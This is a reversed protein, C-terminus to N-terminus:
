GSWNSEAAGPSNKKSELIGMFKLKLNQNLATKVLYFASSKFSKYKKSPECM